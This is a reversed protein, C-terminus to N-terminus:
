EEVVVFAVAYNECHSLALSIKNELHSYRSNNVCVYPKGTEFNGVSISKLELSKDDLAKIVAEKAAFRAAFNEYKNKKSNCYAIEEASFVRDLNNINEDVFKKIRAIEIIDVGTRMM